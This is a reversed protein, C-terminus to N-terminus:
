RSMLMYACCDNQSLEVHSPTKLSTPVHDDFCSCAPMAISQSFELLNSLRVHAGDPLFIQRFGASGINTILVTTKSMSELQEEPSIHDRQMWQVDVDIDAFAHQEVESHCACMDCM